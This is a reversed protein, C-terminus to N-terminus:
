GPFFSCQDDSYIIMYEVASTGLLLYLLSKEETIMQIQGMTLGSSKGPVGCGNVRFELRKPCWWEKKDFSQITFNKWSKWTDNDRCNAFNGFFWPLYLAIEQNFSWPFWTACFKEWSYFENFDLLTVVLTNFKRLLWVPVFSWIENLNRM